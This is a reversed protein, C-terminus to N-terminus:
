KKVLTSNPSDSAERFFTVMDSFGYVALPGMSLKLGELKSLLREEFGVIAAQVQQQQSSDAFYGLSIHPEWERLRPKGIRLEWDEDLQQRFTRLRNEALQSPEDDACLHAVLAEGRIRLSKVRVTLPDNPFDNEEFESSIVPMAKSIKRLYKGFLSQGADNLSNLNAVNVGDWVTVHFSEAPLPCFAPGLFLSESLTFSALVDYVEIGPQCKLLRLGDSNMHHRDGHDFLLSFGAFESWQLPQVQHIKPQDAM